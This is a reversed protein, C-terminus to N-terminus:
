QELIEGNILGFDDKSDYVVIVTDEGFDKSEIKAEKLTFCVSYISASLPDTLFRGDYLVYMKRSM